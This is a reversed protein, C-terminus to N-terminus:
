KNQNDQNNGNVVKPDKFANENNTKGTVKYIESMTDSSENKNMFSIIYGYKNKFGNNNLYKLIANIDSTFDYIESYTGVVTIVYKFEYENAFDQPEMSLYKKLDLNKSVKYQNDVDTETKYRKYYEDCPACDGVFTCNEKPYFLTTVSKAHLEETLDKAIQDKMPKLLAIDIYNDVITYEKDGENYSIARAVFENKNNDSCKVESFKQNHENIHYKLTEENCTFKINYRANLTKILYDEETDAVIITKDYFLIQYFKEPYKKYAFIPGAVVIIFFLIMGLAQLGKINKSDTMITTIIKSIIGGIIGIIAGMITFYTWFDVEESRLASILFTVVAIALGGAIIATPSNSEKKNSIAGIVTAIIIYIPIGIIAYKTFKVTVFLLLFFIIINVVIESILKGSEQSNKKTELKDQIIKEEAEKKAQQEAAVKDYYEQPIEILPKKDEKKEEEKPKVNALEELTEVPKPMDLNNEKSDNIRPLDFPNKNENQM